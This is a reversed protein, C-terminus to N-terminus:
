PRPEVTIALLEVAEIGPASELGLLLRRLVASEKPVMVQGRPDEPAIVERLKGAAGKWVVDYIDQTFPVREWGLDGRQKWWESYAPLPTRSAVVAFAELGPGDTLGYHGGKEPFVLRQVKPPPADRVSEPWAEQRQDAQPNPNFVLLYAYAPESFEVEVQIGDGDWAGFSCRKANGSSDEGFPGRRALSNKGKRGVVIHTVQFTSISLPAPTSAEGTPITPLASLWLGRGSAVVLLGVTLLGLIGLGVATPILWWRGRPQQISPRLPISVNGALGSIAEVVASATAPREDAKKALLRMVLASWAAPISPDTQHPPPPNHTQIKHLISVVTPGTFPREGTTMEYLVVGLSFLDARCDVQEGAAQEPAMYSPTGAVMGSQSIVVDSELVRVLGFDLVLVATEGTATEKLWVNDPKVDRHILRPRAEHAATLGEAMQRGIEQVEALPLRPTRELRRRLSEGRLLPMVLYPVPGNTTPVEGV